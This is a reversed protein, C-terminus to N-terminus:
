FNLLQSVQRTLKGSVPALKCPSIGGLVSELEEYINEDPVGDLQDNSLYSRMASGASGMMRSFAPPSWTRRRSDTRSLLGEGKTPPPPRPPPPTAGASLKRCNYWPRGTVDQSHSRQRFHRRIDLSADGYGLSDRTRAFRDFQAAEDDVEPFLIDASQTHKLTAM